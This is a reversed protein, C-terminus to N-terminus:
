TRRRYCFFVIPLGLVLLFISGPEPVPQSNERLVWEGVRDYWRYDVGDNNYLPLYANVGQVKDTFVSIGIDGFPGDVFYVFDGYTCTISAIHKKDPSLAGFYGTGDFDFLDIPLMVPPHGPPFIELSASVVDGPTGSWFSGAQYESDTIQWSAAFGKRGDAANYGTTVWDYIYTAQAVGTSILLLWGALVLANIAKV